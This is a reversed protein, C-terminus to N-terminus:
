AKDYSAGGAKRLRVVIPQEALDELTSAPVAISFSRLVSQVDGSHVGLKAKRMVKVGSGIWRSFFFFASVWHSCSLPM